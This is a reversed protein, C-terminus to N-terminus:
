PITRLGRSINENSAHTTRQEGCQIHRARMHRLYTRGSAEGAGVSAGQSAAVPRASLIALALPTGATHCRRCRRDQVLQYLESQRGPALCADAEAAPKRISRSLPYYHHHAKPSRPTRTAAEAHVPRPEPWSPNIVAGIPVEMCTPPGRPAGNTLRSHAM